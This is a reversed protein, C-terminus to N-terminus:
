NFPAMNGMLCDTPVSGTARAIVSSSFFNLAKLAINWTFFIKKKILCIICMILIWMKANLYTHTM